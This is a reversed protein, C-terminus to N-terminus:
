KWNSTFTMLPDLCSEWLVSRREYIERESLELPEKEMCTRLARKFMSNDDALNVGNAGVFREFGRMAVSTAVIHKGAWLAEATKLNTGGGQTLPLVICQAGDLLGELCPQSVMGAVIVKEALKASKHVRSDAAIAWGAGGAVVLKEDPKLSGFGGSFIDFFGTMNPPHASACYLAYRLGQTLARAEKRGDDTSRWAQVGNPAIIVPNCTQSRVWEADNESVCIVADSNHIANLEIGKILNANKEATNEDFYSSCIDRKLQWEVNHSSYVIRSLPSYADVYQRAFAFLWPHEVHIIDPKSKINSVLENFADVHSVVYRGIAYDEMLFPNPIIKALNAMKPFSLFGAQSEYSESGLVGAVQVNHGESIYREVINRVRLQGGHKPNLTPYTCLILINM